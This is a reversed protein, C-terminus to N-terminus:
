FKTSLGLNKCTQPKNNKANAYKTERKMPSDSPSQKERRCLDTDITLKFLVLRRNHPSGYGDVAITHRDMMSGFRLTQLEFDSFKNISM